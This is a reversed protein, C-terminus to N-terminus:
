RKGLYDGLTTFGDAITLLLCCAVTTKLREDNPMNDWMTQIKRSEDLRQHLEFELEYQM